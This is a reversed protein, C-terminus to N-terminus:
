SIVCMSRCKNRPSTAQVQLVDVKTELSKMKKDLSAMKSDLKEFALVVAKCLEDMNKDLHEVFNDHKRFRMKTLYM